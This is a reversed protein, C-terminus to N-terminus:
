KEIWIEGNVSWQGAEERVFPVTAYDYSDGGEELVTLTMEMEEAEGSLRWEEMNFVSKIIEIGRPVYYARVAEQALRELDKLDASEVDGISFLGGGQYLGEAAMRSGHYLVEAELCSEYAPMVFGDRSGCSILTRLKIKGDAFAFSVRSTNIGMEEYSVGQEKQLEPSIQQEGLMIVKGNESEAFSLRRLLEEAYAGSQYERATIQGAENDFIWLQEEWVGTGEGWLLKLALEAGGDGDYDAEQVGPAQLTIGDTIFPVSIETVFDQEELLMSQYDGAGYLRYHETEGLLYLRNEAETEPEAPLAFFAEEDRVDTVTMERIEGSWPRTLSATQTLDIEEFLVNEGKGTLRDVTYWDGTHASGIIENDANLFEDNDYLWILVENGDESDIEVHAPAFGHERRYFNEAMQLLQGNSYGGTGNGGTEEMGESLEEVTPLASEGSRGSEEIKKKVINEIQKELEEAPKDSVILHLLMVCRDNKLPEDAAAMYEAAPFVHGPVRLHGYVTTGDAMEEGRGDGYYDAALIIDENMRFRHRLTEGTQFSFSNGICDDPLQLTFVKFLSTPGDAQAYDTVTYSSEIKLCAGTTEETEITRYINATGRKVAKKSQKEALLSECDWAQASVLKGYEYQEVYFGYSAADKSLRYSLEYSEQLLPVSEEQQRIQVSQWQKGASIFGSTMCAFIGVSTLTAVCVGLFVRNKRKGTIRELRQKLNKAGGSMATTVSFCDAPSGKVPAFQLLLEGYSKREQGDMSRIVAEDCALECDQRSLYAALWVLPHYWYLCVCVCRVVGWLPDGHSFHCIEHKLIYPLLKKDEAMEAPIYINKGFLCPTPLGAVAYVNGADPLAIKRRTKRLYARLRIHYVAMCAACLVCGACWVGMLWGPVKM